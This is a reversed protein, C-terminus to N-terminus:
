PASSSPMSKSSSPMPISVTHGDLSAVYPDGSALSRRARSQADANTVTTSVDRGNGGLPTTICACTGVAVTANALTFGTFPVKVVVNAGAIPKCVLGPDCTTGLTVGAANLSGLLTNFVVSIAALVAGSLAGGGATTSRCLTGLSGDGLPSVCTNSPIQLVPNLTVVGLAGVATAPGVLATVLGVISNLATVLPSGVGLCVGFCTGTGCTNAVLTSGVCVNLLGLPGTGVCVLNPACQCTGSTTGGITIICQQQKCTECTGSAAARPAAIATAIVPLSWAVGKTVSRRGVPTASIGTAIREVDVSM